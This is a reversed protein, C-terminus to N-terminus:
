FVRPTVVFAGDVLYVVAAVLSGMESDNVISMKLILIPMFAERDIALLDQLTVFKFVDVEDRACTNLAQCVLELTNESLLMVGSQQHEREGDDCMAQLRAVVKPFRELQTWLRDVASRTTYVPALSKYVRRRKWETCQALHDQLGPVFCADDSCFIRRKCYPCPNLQRRERFRHVAPACRGSICVGFQEALKIPDGGTVEQQYPWCVTALHREEDAM